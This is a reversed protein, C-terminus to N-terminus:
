KSVSKVLGKLFQYGGFIIAGWTMVYSGGDSALSYTIITVLLGGGLWLGGHLMDKRAEAQRIAHFEMRLETVVEEAAASSMGQEVLLGHIQLNNKGAAMHQAAFNYMAQLAQQENPGTPLTAEESIISQQTLTNEM